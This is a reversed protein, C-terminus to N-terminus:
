LHCFYFESFNSPKALTVYFYCPWSEFGHRDVCGMGKFMVNAKMIWNDLINGARINWWPTGLFESMSTLIDADTNSEFYKLVMGRREWKEEEEGLLFLLGVKIKLILGEIWPSLFINTLMFIFSAMLDQIELVFYFGLNSSLIPFDPGFIFREYAM